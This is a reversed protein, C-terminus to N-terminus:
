SVDVFWGAAAAAAALLGWTFGCIGEAGDVAAAALVVLLSSVRVSPVKDSETSLVCVSVPLFRRGDIDDLASTM